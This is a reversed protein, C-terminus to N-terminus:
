IKAPVCYNGKISPVRNKFFPCLEYLVRSNTNAHRSSVSSFSTNKSIDYKSIDFLRKDLKANDLRCPYDCITKEVGFVLHKDAPVLQSYVPVTNVITNELYFQKNMLHFSISQHTSQYSNSEGSLERSLTRQKKYQIHDSQM